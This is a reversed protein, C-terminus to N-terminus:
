NIKDKNIFTKLREELKNNNQNNNLKIQIFRFIFIILAIFGAILSTIGAIMYYEFSIKIIKNGLLSFYFASLLIIALLIKTVKYKILFLQIELQAKTIVSLNNLNSQGNNIIVNNTGIQNVKEKQILKSIKECRFCLNLKPDFYDSKHCIECRNPLSEDKIKLKTMYFNVRRGRMVGCEGAVKGHLKAGRLAASRTLASRTLPRTCHSTLREQSTM